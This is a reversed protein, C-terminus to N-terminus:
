NEIPEAGTEIAQPEPLNEILDKLNSLGKELQPAVMSETALNMYRMFYSGSSGAYSWKVITTTSDVMEFDWLDQAVATFPAVFDLKAKISKNPILEEITLSGTGVTDGKWSWKSGIEGVTGTLENVANKDMMTWANWQKYYSYDKVVGYVVDVPKDIEISRSFAVDEDIFVPIIAFVGILVAIVIVIGILIKM